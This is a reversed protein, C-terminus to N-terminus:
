RDQGPWRKILWWVFLAPCIMLIWALNESGEFVGVLGIGFVFIAIFVLPVFVFPMEKPDRKSM